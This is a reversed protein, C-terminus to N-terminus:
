GKTPKGGIRFATFGAKRAAKVNQKKNDVLATAGVKKMYAVKKDAVDNDPDAVVALKDWCDGLGLSDLLAIKERAIEPTPRDAKHGTLIHVQVPPVEARLGRMLAGMEKPFDTATGDLDCCWIQPQTM